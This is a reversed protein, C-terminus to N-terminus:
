NTVVNGKFDVSVNVSKGDHKAPGRWIGDADKALTGIESLGHAMARDKAQSETFSNAGKLPAGADVKRVDFLGVKCHNLFDAKALKGDAITKNGVRVAAYYRASEAETIYGNGDKDAAQWAAECEPETMAIGAVPMAVVGLIAISILAFSRM